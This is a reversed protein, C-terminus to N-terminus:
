KKKALDLLNKTGVSNVLLTEIPFAIYSRASKANPSAPSALHYIQNVGVLQDEIVDLPQIVDFNIFKFKPNQKLEEINKENGTILNDISIVEDGRNLLERSLNSGIFGAGGAILVKSM